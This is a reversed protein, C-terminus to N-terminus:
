AAQRQRSETLRRKADESLLVTTRHMLRRQPLSYDGVALHQTAYNDWIILDGPRWKHRYVFRPQNLYEFLENLLAQSEGEPLENIKM